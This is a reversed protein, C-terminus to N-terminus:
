NLGSLEVCGMGMANYLGVGSNLLLEVAAKQGRAVLRFNQFGRIRTESPTGHKMTILRSRPPNKYFEPILDSGEMMLAAKADDYVARCKERWNFLLMERFDEDAPSLFDYNGKANKRGCVLPSIPQLRSYVQEGEKGSLVEALSEVRQVQFITKSRKDAIVMEGCTFLGKIFTEMAEPLHFCIVFGAEGGKIIMRDGSIAFPAKLDSFTFLKFGKGYGREHLFAAYGGDAKDLIRYIAASMPYQYNLPIEIHGSTRLIIRLRM